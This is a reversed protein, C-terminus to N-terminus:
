TGPELENNVVVGHGDTAIPTVNDVELLVGRPPGRWPARRATSIVHRYSPRGCVFVCNASLRRETAQASPRRLYIQTHLTYSVCDPYSLWQSPPQQVREARRAACM